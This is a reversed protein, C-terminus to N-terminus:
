GGCHLQSRRSRSGNVEVPPVQGVAGIPFAVEQRAGARESATPALRLFADLAPEFRRRHRQSGKGYYSKSPLRGRRQTGSTANVNITQADHWAKQSAPMTTGSHDHKDNLNM